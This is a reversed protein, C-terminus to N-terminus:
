HASSRHTFSRECSRQVCMASISISLVGCGAGTDGLGHLMVVTGTQPAKPAMVIPKMAASAALSSRSRQAARKLGLAAPAIHAPCLRNVAVANRAIHLMCVSVPTLRLGHVRRPAGFDVEPTISRDCISAATHVGRKQLLVLNTWRKCGCRGKQLAHFAM